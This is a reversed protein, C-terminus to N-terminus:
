EPPLEVGGAWTMRVMHSDYGEVGVYFGDGIHHNPAACPNLQSGTAAEASGVSNGYAFIALVLPILAKAMVTARRM